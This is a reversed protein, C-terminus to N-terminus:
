NTAFFSALLPKARIRSYLDEQRSKKATKFTQVALADANEAHLVKSDDGNMARIRNHQAHTVSARIFGTEDWMQIFENVTFVHFQDIIPVDPNVSACYIVYDIGPMYDWSGNLGITALRCAGSRVGFTTKRGHFIMTISQNRSDALLDTVGVNEELWKGITQFVIRSNAALDMGRYGQDTKKRRGMEVPNDYQTVISNQGETKDSFHHRGNLYTITTNVLKVDPVIEQNDPISSVTSPNTHILLSEDFPPYQELLGLHIAIEGIVFHLNKLTEITADVTMNSDHHAAINGKVRIAHFANMITKDNIYNIFRKDDLLKSVNVGIIDDDIAASYLLKVVFEMAKRCTIVSQIPFDLALVEANACLEHLQQLNEITELFSFNM